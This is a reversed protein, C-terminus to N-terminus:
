KKLSLKAVSGKETKSPSVIYVSADGAGGVEVEGTAAKLGKASLVGAGMVEYEAVDASGALDVKAAGSIDAEIKKVSIGRVNVQSGGSAELDLKSSALSRVNLQAAGSIEFDVETGAKAEKLTMNSAGSLEIEIKNAAINGLTFVAAGSGELELVASPKTLRTCTFSTAGSFNGGTLAKSYLTLKVEQGNLNVSGKNSDMSIYLTNKKEEIKILPMINDPASLLYSAPADSEIYTVQVVGSAEIRSVESIKKENVVITSSAKIVNSRTSPNVIVTNQVSSAYLCVSGISAGLGTLALSLLLLTNRKM